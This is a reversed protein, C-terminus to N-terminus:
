LRCAGPDCKAFHEREHATEGIGLELLGESKSGYRFVTIGKCGLDHALRYVQAVDNATAEAPLNVTKSVANDVHRQFATQMRVHHEPPIELATVFLRRVDEPVPVQDNLRGYHAVSDLIEQTALKKQDLYRVFLPNLETLTQQNLV